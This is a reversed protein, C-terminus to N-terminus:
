LLAVGLAFLVLNLLFAWLYVRTMRVAAGDANRSFAIVPWTIAAVATVLAGFLLGAAAYVFLHYLPREGLVGLRLRAGSLSDWIEAPWPLVGLLSVLASYVAIFAAAGLFFLVSVWTATSVSHWTMSGVM